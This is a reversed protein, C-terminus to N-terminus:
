INNSVCEFEVHIHLYDLPSTCVAVDMMLPNFNLTGLSGRGTDLSLLSFYVVIQVILPMMSNRITCAPTFDKGKPSMGNFLNALMFGSWFPLKFFSMAQLELAVLTDLTWFNSVNLPLGRGSSKDMTHQKAPSLHQSEM